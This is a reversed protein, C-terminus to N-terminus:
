APLALGLKTCNERHADRMGVVEAARPLELALAASGDGRGAAEHLRELYDRDARAIALAERATLRPGHGPIVESVGDELLSILRALTARYAALEDVFPIECPSLHDGTLLIGEREMLLGLGDPSHGPLHLALLEVAEAEEGGEAEGLRVREGDALARRTAPWAYGSPRPVYWRSDFERADQLYGAARPAGEDIAAALQANMWVPAAPWLAHGMVHDWHGHTFAVAATRGREAACRAIAELERPFYAPDIVLCAGGRSIVTSTTQWIGSTLVEIQTAPM